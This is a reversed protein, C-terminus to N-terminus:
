LNRMTEEIKHLISSNFSKLIRNIKNIKTKNLSYTTFEDSEVKLILKSIRLKKILQSFGSRSTEKKVNLDLFINKYSMEGDKLINLIIKSKESSVSRNLNM